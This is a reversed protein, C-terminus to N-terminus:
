ARRSKVLNSSGCHQNKGCLTSWQIGPEAPLVTLPPSSCPPTTWWIGTGASCAPRRIDPLCWRKMTVGRWWLRTARGSIRLGPTRRPPVHSPRKWQSAQFGSGCSWYASAFISTVARHWAASSIGSGKSTLPRWRMPLVSKLHLCRPDQEHCGWPLKGPRHGTFCCSEQRAPM